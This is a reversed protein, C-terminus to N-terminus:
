CSWFITFFLYFYRYSQFIADFLICTCTNLVIRIQPSIIIEIIIICLLLLPSKHYIYIASMHIDRASSCKKCSVNGAMYVWKYVTNVILILM